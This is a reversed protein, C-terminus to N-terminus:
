FARAATAAISFTLTLAGISFVAWHTFRTLKENTVVRVIADKM